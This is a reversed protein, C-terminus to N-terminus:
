YEYDFALIADNLARVQAAVKQHEPHPLYENVAEPSIFTMAFGHTYGMARESGSIEAGGSYDVITDFTDKLGALAVMLADMEADTTEAKRKMLVIHKVM